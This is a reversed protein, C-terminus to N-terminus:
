RTRAQETVRYWLQYGGLVPDSAAELPRFNKEIWDELLEHRWDLDVGRPCVRLFEERTLKMYLIWEPPRAQLEALAATEERRTGMAPSFFSFETPNKGQTLFYHIPMYPYVFLGQGPHVSALLELMAPVKANEIRVNGVPTAVSSTDKLTRFFNSGFIGAMILVVTALAVNARAPFWREMAAGAMAYSLAAAFALHMVDQRPTLAMVFAINCLILLLALGRLELPVKKRWLAIGWATTAVVPLIAPLAVCGVLLIRTILDAAGATGAFLARYGGIISGYPMANVVAYNDKLWIMQRLFAMLSGTIMLAAAAISSVAAIGGLFPVLGNRQERDILLWAAIAIGVLGATPTCWTAAALLAGSAVWRLRTSASSALAVGALALASSDWQHQATLFAPEAIQFGVFAFCVAFGTALSSLRAAIWFVLACQLAFDLIVIVRGTFLSVGGVRFVAAQLWYSGPSMYAWFDVYPRSGEAVRQASDLLIGEDNTTVVRHGHFVLLLTAMSLFIAVALRVRTM